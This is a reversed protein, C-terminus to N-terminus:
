CTPEQELLGARKLAYARNRGKYEDDLAALWLIAVWCQMAQWVRASREWRRMDVVYATYNPWSLGHAMIPIEHAYM